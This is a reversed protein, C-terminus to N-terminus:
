RRTPNRHITAVQHRFGIERRKRTSTPTNTRLRECLRRDGILSVVLGRRDADALAEQLLEAAISSVRVARLYIRGETYCYYDRALRLLEAIEVAQAVRLVGTCSIELYELRFSPHIVREYM